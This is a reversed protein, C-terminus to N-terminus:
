YISFPFYKANIKQYTGDLRIRALAANLRQRLADDQKRVAIGIDEDVYIPKGVFAFDRGEPSTTFRWMGLSDGLLLDVKGDLLARNIDGEDGGPVPVIEAAAGFTQRAYRESTSEASAGIKLGRLGEPTIPRDFGKRAVFQMPTRYYHNTFAVLKKREETISMSAIIADGQGAILDPITQEWPLDIFECRLALAACLANAIDIDFGTLSGNSGPYTFPPYVGDLIFRIRDEARAATGPGALVFLTALVVLGYALARRFAAAGITDARNCHM